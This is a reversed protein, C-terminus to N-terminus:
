YGSIALWDIGQGAFHIGRAGPRHGTGDARTASVGRADCEDVSAVGRSGTGSGEWVRGVPGGRAERPRRRGCGREGIIRVEAAV